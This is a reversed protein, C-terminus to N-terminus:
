KEFVVLQKLTEFETLNRLKIYYNLSTALRSAYQVYTENPQRRTKRFRELCTQFTSEM